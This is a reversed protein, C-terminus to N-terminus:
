SNVPMAMGTARTAPDGAPGARRKGAHQGVAHRNRQIKSVNTEHVAQDTNKEPRGNNLQLQFSGSKSSTACVVPAFHSTAIQGSNARLPCAHKRQSHGSEPTFRVHRNCHSIDALSGFRVIVAWV